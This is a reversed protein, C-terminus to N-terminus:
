AWIAFLFISSGTIAWWPLDMSLLDDELRVSQFFGCYYYSYLLWSNISEVYFSGRKYNLSSLAIQITILLDVDDFELKLYYFIWLGGGARSGRTVSDLRVLGMFFVGTGYGRAWPEGGELEM